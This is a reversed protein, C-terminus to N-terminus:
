ILNPSIDKWAPADPMTWKPVNTSLVDLKKWELEFRTSLATYLTLDASREPWALEIDAAARIAAVSRAQAYESPAITGIGSLIGTVAKDVMRQAQGDDPHTLGNFTGFIVDSGATIDRTKSPVFDGVESLFPTWVPRTNSPDPLPRVNYVKAQVGAGTGAVTWVAVYDGSQAATFQATYDQGTPGTISPPTLATGDPKLIAVSVLTSGDPIVGLTLRSVIPDGLDFVTQAM